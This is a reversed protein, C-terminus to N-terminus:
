SRRCRRTCCTRWHTHRMRSRMDLLLLHLFSPWTYRARYRSHAATGSPPPCSPVPFCLLLRSRCPKRRHIRYTHLQIHRGRPAASDLIRPLTGAIRQLICFFPKIAPWVLRPHQPYRELPRRGILHVTFNPKVKGCHCGRCQIYPNSSQPSQHWTVHDAREGPVQCGWKIWGMCVPGDVDNKGHLGATGRAKQRGDDRKEAHQIHLKGHRRVYARAHRRCALIAAHRDLGGHGVHWVAMAHIGPLGLEAIQVRM